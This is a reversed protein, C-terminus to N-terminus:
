APPGTDPTGTPDDLDEMAVTDVGVKKPWISQMLGIPPQNVAARLARLSEPTVWQPSPIASVEIPRYYDHWDAEDAIRQREENIMAVLEDVIQDPNTERDARPIYLALLLTAGPLDDTDDHDTM